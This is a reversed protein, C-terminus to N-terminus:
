SSRAGTYESLVGGDPLVGGDTECQLVASSSIYKEKCDSASKQHYMRNFPRISTCLMPLMSTSRQLNPVCATALDSSLYHARNRHLAACTSSHRLHRCVSCAVGRAGTSKAAAVMANM